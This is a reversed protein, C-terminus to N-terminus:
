CKLALWQYRRGKWVWTHLPVGHRQCEKCRWEFSWIKVLCAAKHDSSLDMDPWSKKPFYGPQLFVRWEWGFIDPTWLWYRKWLFASGSASSSEELSAFRLRVEDTEMTITLWSEHVLWTHALRSRGSGTWRELPKQTRMRRWTHAAYRCASQEPYSTNVALTM